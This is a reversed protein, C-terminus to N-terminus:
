AGDRDQTFDPVASKQQASLPVFWLAAGACVLGALTGPVSLKSM